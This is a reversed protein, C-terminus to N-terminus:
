DKIDKIEDRIKAADEYREEKIAKKLEDELKQKRSISNIEKNNVEKNNNERPIVNNPGRGIHRTNGQINKIVPNISLPLVDSM